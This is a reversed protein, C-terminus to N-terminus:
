RSFSGKRRGQMGTEELDVSEGEGALVEKARGDVPLTARVTTGKGPVSEIDFAGNLQQVRERMGAIGVGPPAHSGRGVGAITLGCGEDQVEAHLLRDDRWIRIRATASGSYRHVNTLAEQVVRFITTEIEQPLRGFNEAIDVTVALKSRDAFGRAYWRLAPALGAEDLLPPHM